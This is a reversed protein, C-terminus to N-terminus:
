SHYQQSSPHRTGPNPPNYKCQDVFIHIMLFNYKKSKDLKPKFKKKQIEVSFGLLSVAM